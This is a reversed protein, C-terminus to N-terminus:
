RKPKYDGIRYMIRCKKIKCWTVFDKVPQWLFQIERQILILTEHDAFIQLQPQFFKWHCLQRRMAFTWLIMTPMRNFINEILFTLFSRSVSVITKQFKSFSTQFSILIKNNKFPQVSNLFTSKRSSNEIANDGRYQCAKSRVTVTFQFYKQLPTSRLVSFIKSLLDLFM